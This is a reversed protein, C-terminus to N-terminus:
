IKNFIKKKDVIYFVGTVLAGITGLVIFYDEVGTDKNDTTGTNLKQSCLTYQSTSNSNFDVSPTLTSASNDIIKACNDQSMGLYKYGSAVTINLKVKCGTGICSVNLVSGTDKNTNITGALNEKKFTLGQQANITVGSTNFEKKNDISTGTYNCDYLYIRSAFLKAEDTNSSDCSSGNPVSKTGDSKVEQYPSTNGNACTLTSSISENMITFNYKNSSCNIEIGEIYFGKTANKLSGNQKLSERVVSEAQSNAAIAQADSPVEAYVAVPVLLLVLQIFVKKM